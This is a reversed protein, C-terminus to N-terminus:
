ESEEKLIQNMYNKYQSVGPQDFPYVDLLYAGFAAAYEFFLILEGINIENLKDLTILNSYNENLYHAKAVSILAINNIQNLDYKYETIKLDSTENIGIVTQFIINNGQQYFQGISHLDKTNVTSIPLIAKKNKGQTEAFLQILWQTFNFLKPEYITFSEVLKNNHYLQDRVLAYQIAKDINVKKAGSLLEFIDVGSVAIPLLGAATLVSYRGGINKPITFSQYGWEEVQKRLYGNNADTTVIIREKVETKSYKKELQKKLHEFTIKTEITDGSKSIVNMIVNKNEIYTSLENLYNASLSTGAFIIEPNQKEFYPSFASIIAQAGLYSGGIGIVILTDYNKRISNSLNTLRILEEKSICNDPNLWGSMDDNILKNKIINIKDTCASNKVKVYEEFNYKIM